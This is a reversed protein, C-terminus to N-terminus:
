EKCHACICKKECIDCCKCTSTIVSDEYFLFHKFLVSRCCQITNSGYSIMDGQTNKGPNGYLLLATASQGNRGARGTEQAYQEISGPPGYHIVNVIDPCDIGMGFAMTAIVIRLTGNVTM